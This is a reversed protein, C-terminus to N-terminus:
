EYIEQTQGNYKITTLKTPINFYDYTSHYHGDAIVKSWNTPPDLKGMPVKVRAIDRRELLSLEKTEITIGIWKSFSEDTKIKNIFEEKPYILQKELSQIVLESREGETRISHKHEKVYNEYADDILDIEKDLKNM